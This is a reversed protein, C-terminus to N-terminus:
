VGAPRPSSTLSAATVSQGAGHVSGGADQGALGQFVERRAPADAGRRRQFRALHLRGAEVEPQRAPAPPHAGREQGALAPAHMIADTRDGHM